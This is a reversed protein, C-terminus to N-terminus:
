IKGSLVSIGGYPFINVRGRPLVKETNEIASALSGFWPVTNPFVTHTEVPGLGPSVISVEYGECQKKRRELFGEYGIGGPGFLAHYGAGDPCSSFLLVRGKPKASYIGMGRSLAKTSQVLDYDEPFANIIVLDANPPAEVKYARRANEIAARHAEIMDGAYLAVIDRDTGMIANVVFDVGILRAAAELDQRFPNNEVEGIGKSVDMRNLHHKSITEFGSVGPLITKGGGGFGANPHPLIGGLGIKIDAKAVHANIWVPTGAPTDGMYKLNDYLSPNVTLYKNVIENGLKRRFEPGSLPRHCGLASVIVINEPELGAAELEELVVPLIRDIRMPRSIDEVVVAASKKGHTINRLPQTGLPNEFCKRIEKDTLVPLKQPCCCSINWGQPIKFSVESEHTPFVLDQQRPGAESM